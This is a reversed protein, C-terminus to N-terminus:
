KRDRKAKVDKLLSNDFSKEINPFNETPIMGQTVFFEGVTLMCQGFRIGNPNLNDDLRTYTVQRIEDAMEQDTVKRGEEAYWEQAVKRRMEPDANLDDMERYYCDLFAVLDARRDRVVAAQAFLPDVLYVGLNEGLDSVRFYGASAMQNSFPAVCALLDGQGSIFAQKAQPHDMSVMNFDSATLGFAEAYQIAHLHASTALPGLINAGKILKADGYLGKKPGKVKTFESGPRAYVAQGEKVIGGEGIYIYSGTSLGFVGAMGSVAMDLQEAGMAENIPAGTAFIIVEVDLGADKFYGAKEAQRVPLGLSLAMTGVRLKKGSPKDKSEGALAGSSYGVVLAVALLLSGMGMTKMVFGKM